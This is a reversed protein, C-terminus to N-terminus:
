RVTITMNMPNNSVRNTVQFTGASSFTYTFSENSKLMKDVNISKITVNHQDPDKNKFTVKTGVPITLTNPNFKYKYIIVSKTASAVPAPDTNTEVPQQQVPQTQNKRCGILNSTLSLMLVAILALRFMKM